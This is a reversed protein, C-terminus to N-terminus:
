VHEVYPMVLRYRDTARMPDVSLRSGPAAVQPIPWATSPEDVTVAGGSADEARASVIRAPMSPARREVGTRADM